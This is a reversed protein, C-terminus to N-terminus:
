TPHTPLTNPPHPPGASIAHCLQLGALNSPQQTSGQQCRADPATRAPMCCCRRRTAGPVMRRGCCACSGWNIDLRGAPEQLPREQVQKFLCLPWLKHTHAHHPLHVPRRIRVKHANRRASLGPHRLDTLTRDTPRPPYTAALLPRHPLQSCHAIQPSLFARTPRVPRCRCM